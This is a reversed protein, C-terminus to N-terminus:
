HISDGVGPFSTSPHYKLHNPRLPPLHENVDVCLPIEQQCVAGSADSVMAPYERVYAAHHCPCPNSVRGDNGGAFHVGFAAVVVSVRLKADVAGLALLLDAVGEHLIVNEERGVAVGIERPIHQSAILLDYEVFATDIGKIFWADVAQEALDTGGFEHDDPGAGFRSNLGSGESQELAVFLHGDDDIGNAVM